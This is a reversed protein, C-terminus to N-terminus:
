RKEIEFEGGLLTSSAGRTARDESQSKKDLRCLKIMEGADPTISEIVNAGAAFGIAIGIFLSWFSIKGAITKLYTM